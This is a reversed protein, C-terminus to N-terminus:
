PEIRVRGTIGQAVMLAQIYARAKPDPSKCSQQQGTYKADIEAGDEPRVGDADMGLECGKEPDKVDTHLRYETSGAM